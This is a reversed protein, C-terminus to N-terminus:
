INWERDVCCEKWVSSGCDVVAFCRWLMGLVTCRSRHLNWSAAVCVVIELGECYVGRDGFMEFAGASRQAVWICVGRGGSEEVAHLNHQPGGKGKVHACRLNGTLM